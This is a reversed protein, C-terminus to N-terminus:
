PNAPNRPSAPVPYWLQYGLSRLSQSVERPDSNQGNPTNPQVGRDLDKQEEEIGNSLEQRQAQIGRDLDQEIVTEQSHTGPSAIAAM